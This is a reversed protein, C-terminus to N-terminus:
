VTNPHPQDLTEDATLAWVIRCLRGIIQVLTDASVVDMVVMKFVSHQLHLSEAASRSSCIPVRTAETYNYATEAAYRTSKKIGARISVFAIGTTSVLFEADM